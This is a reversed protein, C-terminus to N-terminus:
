GHSMDMMTLPSLRRVLEAQKSAGAKRLLSSLQSRVTALGVRLRAASEAPSHGQLILAALHSEAPTFGFLQQLLLVGPHHQDNARVVMLLAAASAPGSENAPAPLILLREDTTPRSCRPM